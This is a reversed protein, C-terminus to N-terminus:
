EILPSNAIPLNKWTGGESEPNKCDLPLRLDPAPLNRGDDYYRYM